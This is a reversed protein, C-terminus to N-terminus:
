KHKDLFDRNSLTENFFSLLQNIIESATKADNGLNIFMCITIIFQFLYIFFRLYYVSKEYNSRAKIDNAKETSQNILNVGTEKARAKQNSPKSQIDQDYSNSAVNSLTHFSREPNEAVKNILTTAKSITELNDSELLPSFTAKLTDSIIEKTPNTALLKACYNIAQAQQKWINSSKQVVMSQRIVESAASMQSARISKVMLQNQKAVTSMLKLNRNLVTTSTTVSFNNGALLIKKVKRMEEASILNRHSNWKMNATNAIRSASTLAALTEKNPFMNRVLQDYNKPIADAFYKYVYNKPSEINEKTM